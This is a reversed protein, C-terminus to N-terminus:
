VDYEALKRDLTSRHVKLFDAAQRKNGKAVRLVQLIHRKEVAALSLDADGEFEDTDPEFEGPTLQLHEAGVTKGMCLVFARRLVSRLERVNGPWDYEAMLQNAEDSIEPSAKGNKRLEENRIIQCLLPLDGLRERLPPIIITIERLRFLLDKRFSSRRVVEELRHNTLSIIRANTNTVKEAGLRQFQKYEVAHLIKPQIRLSMDGIEDLVLTGDNALEFQGKRQKDAGTFAGKEHGFLESELLSESLASTNIIIFPGKKRRSENHIAQALLNKGTGSEGTILVALESKAANKALCLCEAMAPTQTYFREFMFEGRRFLQTTSTVGRRELDENM